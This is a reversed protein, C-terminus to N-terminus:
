PRGFRHPRWKISVKRSRELFVVYVTHFPVFVNSFLKKNIPNSSISNADYRALDLYLANLRVMCYLSLYVISNYPYM